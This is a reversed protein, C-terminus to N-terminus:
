LTPELTPTLTPPTRGSPARPDEFSRVLDASRVGPASSLISRMEEVGSASETETVVVLTERGDMRCEIESRGALAARVAGVDRGRELVLLWGSTTM